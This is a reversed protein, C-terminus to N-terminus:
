LCIVRAVPTSSVTLIVCCPIGLHTDSALALAGTNFQLADGRSPPHCALCVSSIPRLAEAEPPLRLVVGVCRKVMSGAVALNSCCMFSLWVSRM